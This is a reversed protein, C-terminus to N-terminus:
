GIYRGRLPDIQVIAQGHRMEEKHHPGRGAMKNKPVNVSRQDAEGPRPDVAKGVTVIADVEGPKDVKSGRLSDLGIFMPWEMRDSDASLQSIAIVPGYEKALDRAWKYLKGLRLHEGDGDGTFGHVKDLQDFVIMGPNVDQFLSTLGKVHNTKGDTILVKRGNCHEEYLKMAAKSDSMVEETTMNLASQVVRFFVQESREENNVWVIPRDKPMQPIIYSVESALLTTKGCEVRAAFLVFDGDRLPGLSENLFMMRWEYGTTAIRECVAEVDPVVFMSDVDVFRGLDRLAKTTLDHVHEIDSKGHKTDECEQMIKAVYDMEILSKIVEDYAVTPEFTKMKEITHKIVTATKGVRAAYKSFLFSDLAEWNMTKNVTKYYDDMVDLIFKTEPQICHDKVYSRYKKFNSESDSCIHLVDFDM